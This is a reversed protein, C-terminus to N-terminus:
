FVKILSFKEDARITAANNLIFERAIRFKAENEAKPKTDDILPSRKYDLLFDHRTLVYSIGIAAAKAKLESSSRSEWVMKRLTWDEFLYDSFYPRDLNYSDRRMNILWVKADAPTESNLWQYYPYYDINRSLYQDRTEGGFVALLPAKQLFWATSVLIGGIASLTLAYKSVIYMASRRTFSRESAIAIAIALVPMIPLLYRLQQSSFLWFVFMIGAIGVGIKTEEPMDKKWLAWILIPLGFLFAVGLVGDFFTSYEPQANVSLNWPALLYDFPTKNEGGYASNMAQFLNSREVDWGAAEGPWINMYFPFVPSGTEAWTRLYWPSAIIGALILAGFGRALIGGVKEPNTAQAQRARFTIVLAFSAFVFLATLKASLAASLFIAAFILWGHELNRWWKTLAVIALTIYLAMALDIYGSAAVHYASPIAAIMLVAILAWRRSLELEGAWGYIATLLIPFFAFNVAGAAAESARQGFFDGLLMAWVNQMEVGLALYSAINGEIFNSSGQAIFAKPVAFHYLLTDKATPPALSAIFALAVPIAILVLLARDFLAAKEVVRSVVTKRVLGRLGVGAFGIGIIIALLATTRNYAGALGLFFWMLSWIAAGAASKIAFDLLRSRNEEKSVRVFSAAFSGIGFWAGAILLAIAAGAISGFIGIGFIPGGGLSGILRGLQGVDAGRHSLFSVLVFVAFIAALIAAM